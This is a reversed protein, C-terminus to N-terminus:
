AHIGSFHWDDKEQQESKLFWSSDPRFLLNDKHQQYLSSPPSLPRFSGLVNTTSPSTPDIFPRIYDNGVAFSTPQSPVPSGLSSPQLITNHLPPSSMMKDAQSRGWSLRIRSNGILFGNMREIALEASPRSVYQVFGCGKGSPIKVYTVEGFPAFYQRLEEENVPSSLGGVFVTTNNPDTPQQVLAPAQLALQLYRASNNKPTAYSVRMPRNSCVIGNMEMVADHQEMQNLFRVFGYGRSLGTIPDTMIKASHCSPYRRRFVSLLYTEDVDSSLDGVFLSFEPARDEKRDCIGGGSAWNLRFTRQSNPIKSGHITALARQAAQISSFGIFAYGASIGTRKDRILKVIVNEGLSYWVQRIFNEDMWPDLDGMWLTMRSSDIAAAYNNDLLIDSM